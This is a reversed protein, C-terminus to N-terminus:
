PAEKDFFDSYDEDPDTFIAAIQDLWWQPVARWAEDLETM